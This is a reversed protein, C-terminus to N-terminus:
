NNKESVQSIILLENAQIRCISNKDNLYSDLFEVGVFIKVFSPNVLFHIYTHIFSTHIYCPKESKFSSTFQHIFGVLDDLNQKFWVRCYRTLNRDMM